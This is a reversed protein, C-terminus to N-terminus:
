MVIKKAKDADDKPNRIFVGEWYGSDPLERQCLIWDYAFEEGLIEEALISVRPRHFSSTVFVVKDYSKKSVWTRAMVLNEATNTSVEDMIYTWHRRRNSQSIMQSMKSAESLSSEDPNKIGVSLFWDIVTTDNSQKLAFEVGANIRGELLYDVNSGLM